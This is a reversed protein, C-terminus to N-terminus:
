IHEGEDRATTTQPKASVDINHSKNKDSLAYHEFGEFTPILYREKGDEVFPTISIKVLIYPECVRKTPSMRPLIFIAM